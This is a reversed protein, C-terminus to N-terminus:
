EEEQSRSSYDHRSRYDMRFKPNRELKMIADISYGSRNFEDVVPQLDERSILQVFQPMSYVIMDKNDVICVRRNMKKVSYTM